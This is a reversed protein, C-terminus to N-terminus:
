ETRTAAEKAKQLIDKIVQPDIKGSLVDEMLKHATLHMSLHASELFSIAQERTAEKDINTQLYRLVGDIDQDTMEYGQNTTM